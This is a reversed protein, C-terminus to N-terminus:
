WCYVAEDERPDPVVEGESARALGKPFYGWEEMQEIDECGVESPGFELTKPCICYLHRFWNKQILKLTPFIRKMM